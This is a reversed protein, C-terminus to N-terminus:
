RISYVLHKAAKAEIQQSLENIKGFKLAKTPCAHVCAPELGQEVREACMQCKEMKGDEGFRPIGFPCALSCSHCGICLDNRVHIVGTEEHKSVAGTPCALLCPTDQCHMCTLSVYNIKAEPFSGSEIQFVQRWADEKKETFLDNQDMCAVTCAHCGSCRNLDLSIFYSM